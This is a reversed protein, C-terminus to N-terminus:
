GFAYGHDRFLADNVAYIFMGVQMVIAILCLIQAWIFHRKQKKQDGNETSIADIYKQFASRAGTFFMVSFFTIGFIIFSAIFGFMEDLLGFAGFINYAMAGFFIATAIWALLNLNKIKTEIM